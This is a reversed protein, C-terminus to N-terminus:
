GPNHKHSSVMDQADQERGQPTESVMSDFVRCFGPPVLEQM